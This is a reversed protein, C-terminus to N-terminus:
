PSKRLLNRPFRCDVINKIRHNADCRSLRKQITTIPKVTM